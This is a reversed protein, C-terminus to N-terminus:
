WIHNLVTCSQSHGKLHLIIYPSSLVGLSLETLQSFPIYLNCLAKLLESQHNRLSIKFKCLLPRDGFIDIGGDPIELHDGPLIAETLSSLTRGPM